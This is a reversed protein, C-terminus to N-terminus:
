KTATVVTGTTLKNGQLDVIDVVTNETSVPAVTIVTAQTSAYTATNDGIVLHVIKADTGDVAVSYVPVVSGNVTINFDKLKDVSGVTGLLESFTLDIQKFLGSSAEIIKVGTLTPAVNDLLTLQKFFAAGTTDDSVLAAGNVDKVNKSIGLKYNANAAVKFSAPLTIQVKKKDDVYNIVTGAPLAADDLTYNSTALASDTFDTASTVTIINQTGTTAATVTAPEFYSAASSVTFSITDETSENLDKDKVLGKPLVLEYSGDALATGFTLTVTRETADTGVDAVTPKAMTSQIIGGKKIVINANQATVADVAETYTVTVVTKAANVTVLNKSLLSPATADKSLTVNNPYATGLLGNADKYGDFSVSLSTSTEGTNYLKVENAGSAEAVTFTISKKDAALAGTVRSSNITNGAKKVTLNAVADAAGVTGAVAKDFSVKFSNASVAEVKSVVPAAANEM